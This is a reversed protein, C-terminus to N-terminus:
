LKGSIKLAKYVIIIVFLILLAWFGKFYFSLKGENKAKEMESQKVVEQVITETPCPPSPIEKDIYVAITDHFIREFIRYNVKSQKVNFQLNRDTYHFERCNNITDQRIITDHFVEPVRIVKTTLITDIYRITDAKLYEPYEKAIHAAIQKAGNKKVFRAIKKQESCSLLFAALLLLLPIKKM